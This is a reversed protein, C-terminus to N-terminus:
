RCAEDRFTYGWAGQLVEAGFAMSSGADREELSISLSEETQV